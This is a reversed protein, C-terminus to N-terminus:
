TNTCIHGTHTYACVCARPTNGLLEHQARTHMPTYIQVWARPSHKPHASPTIHIKQFKPCHLNFFFFQLFANKPNERKRHTVWINIQSPAVERDSGKKGLGM